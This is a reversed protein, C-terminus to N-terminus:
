IINMFLSYGQNSSCYKLFVQEKPQYKKSTATLRGATLKVNWTPAKDVCHRATLVHTRTILTGGCLEIIDPGIYQPIKSLIHIQYPLPRVVLTGGYIRAGKHKHPQSFTQCRDISVLNKSM